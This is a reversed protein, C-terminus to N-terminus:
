WHSRRSFSSLVKVRTSITQICCFLTQLPPVGGQPLVAHAAAQFPAQEPALVPKEVLALDVAAKPVPLGGQLREATKETLERNPAAGSPIATPPRLPRSISVQLNEDGKILLPWEVLHHRGGHPSCPRALSGRQLSSTSARTRPFGDSLRARNGSTARICRSWDEECGSIGHAGRM